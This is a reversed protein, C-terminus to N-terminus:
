KGKIQGYGLDFAKLNVEKYKPLLTAIEERLDETKFPLVGLAAIAGVMVVNTAINNGAQASLATADFARVDKCFKGLSSILESNEAYKAFGLSVPVPVIRHTNCLITGKSSMFHAFRLAEAPEMGILVDCEGEPVLPGKAGPGFRIHTEVVGGRQAMGHTEGVRINIGAKMATNALLRSLLIAGQGGVSGVVINLTKM